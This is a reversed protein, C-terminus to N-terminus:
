KWRKYKTKCGLLESWRGLLLAKASKESKGSYLAFLPPSIFIGLKSLKLLNKLYLRSLPMERPSLVIKRREKINVAFVRECLSNAHNNVVRALFDTSAYFFASDIHFSGSSIPAELANDKFFRLNKQRKLQKLFSKGGEHKLVKKAGKSMVLFVEHKKALKKALHLALLVGSAGSICVAIRM